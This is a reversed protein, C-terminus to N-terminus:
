AELALTAPEADIEPPPPNIWVVEPQRWCRTSRTWRRPHLQRAQEYVRARHRCIEDAQGSHRQDPTVFRIGSHRHQHNYWDVFAAVWACADDQSRFPRRPYDPRCKVTRLLSESYPNDNSVRPRSFSRLVGLEELRTELTAARMANGNDAHLILPQHRGRSIRERLCARSVLDAAILSDEREAVDWAVEKRSWVDIVLYLYLWVGRVRTPLYTIDWSWVQNPGKAELRPVARPEQPSRARGRRQAQGHAHLVRYFSRESGIYVKGLARARRMAM